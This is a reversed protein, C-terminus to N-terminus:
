AGYKALRGGAALMLPMLERTPRRGLLGRACAREGFTTVDDRGVRPGWM